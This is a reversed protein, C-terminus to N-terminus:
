SKRQCRQISPYLSYCRLESSITKWGLTRCAMKTDPPVLNRQWTSNGLIVKLFTILILPFGTKQLLHAWCPLGLVTRAAASSRLGRLLFGSCLLLGSKICPICPLKSIISAFLTLFFTILFALVLWLWPEFPFYLLCNISHISSFDTQGQHQSCNGKFSSQPWPSQYEDWLSRVYTWHPRISCQIKVQNHLLAPTKHNCLVAHLHYSTQCSHLFKALRHYSNPPFHPLFPWPASPQMEGNLSPLSPISLWHLSFLLNFVNHLVKPTVFLLVLIIHNSFMPLFTFYCTTYNRGKEHTPDETIM